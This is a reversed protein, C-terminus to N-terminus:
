NFLVEYRSRLIFTSYEASPINKAQLDALIDKQSFSDKTRIYANILFSLYRHNLAKKLIEFIKQNPRAEIREISVLDKFFEFDDDYGRLLRVFWLCLKKDYTPCPFRKIETLFETFDVIEYFYLIHIFINFFSSKSSIVFEKSTKQTYWSKVSASSRKKLCKFLLSIDIYQSFLEAFNRLRCVKSMEDLIREIPILKLGEMHKKIAVILSKELTFGFNASFRLCRLIRLADEYIRNNAEGVCKLRKSKIDKLGGHLDLIRDEQPSFYLANITFDRRKSDEELTGTSIKSPHRRDLYPGDKRFTAVEFSFGQHRVLCVGFSNGVLVSKPFLEKIKEVPASTAIDIDKPIEKPFLLFDRVCGGVMYADLHHKSLVDCVDKAALYINSQLIKKSPSYQTM